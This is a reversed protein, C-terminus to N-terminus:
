ALLVRVETQLFYMEAIDEIFKPNLNIKTYTAIFIRHSLAQHGQVRGKQRVDEMSIPNSNNDHLHRVKTIESRITCGHRTKSFFFGKM